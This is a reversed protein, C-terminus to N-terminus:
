KALKPGAHQIALRSSPRTGLKKQGTPHSAMLDVITKLAMVAKAFVPIGDFLKNDNGQM